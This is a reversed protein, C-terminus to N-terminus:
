VDRGLERSVHLCASTEVYINHGFKDFKGLRFGGTYFSMSIEEFTMPVLNKEGHAKDTELSQSEIVQGNGHIIFGAWGSFYGM